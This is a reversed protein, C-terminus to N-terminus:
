KRSLYKTRFQEADAKRDEKLLAHYQAWKGADNKAPTPLASKQIESFRAEIAEGGAKRIDYKEAEARAAKEADLAKTLDSKETAAAELAKTSEAVKAELAAIAEAHKTELAAVADKHQASLAAIEADKASLAETHKSLEIVNTATAMSDPQKSASEDVKASFLATNAAPTKVFDCSIIGLVRLSPMDRVANEPAGVIGDATVETGDNLVWAFAVRMVPSIGLQDPYNKALEVLTGYEEPENEIFANLFVFNRARVRNGDRYFGSFMGCEDGLRDEMADEHTLYAPITKGLALATFQEITREDVYVGHGLAEGETLISVDSFGKPTVAAFSIQEFCVHDKTATPM